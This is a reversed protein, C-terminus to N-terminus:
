RINLIARPAKLNPLLLFDLVELQSQSEGCITFVKFRYIRFIEFRDLVLGEVKRIYM